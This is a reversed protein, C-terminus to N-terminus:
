RTAQWDPALMIYGAVTTCATNIHQSGLCCCRHAELWAKDHTQRDRIEEQLSKYLPEESRMPDKELVGCVCFAHKMFSPMMMGGSMLIHEKPAQLLAKNM